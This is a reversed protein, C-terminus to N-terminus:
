AALAHAPKPSSTTCLKRKRCYSELRIFAFWSIWRDKRVLSLFNRSASRLVLQVIAAKVRRNTRRALKVQIWANRHRRECRLQEITGGTNFEALAAELFDLNYKTEAAKRTIWDITRPREKLQKILVRTHHWLHRGRTPLPKPHM